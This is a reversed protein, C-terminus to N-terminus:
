NVRHLLLTYIHMFPSPQDHTSGKSFSLLLILYPLSKLSNTVYVYIHMIYIHLHFLIEGLRLFCMFFKFEYHISLM